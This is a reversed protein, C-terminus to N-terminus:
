TSEKEPVAKRSLGRRLLLWSLIGWGIVGALILCVGFFRRGTWGMQYVYHALILSPISFWSIGWAALFCYPFVFSAHHEERKLFVFRVLMAYLAAVIFFLIAFLLFKGVSPQDLAMGANSLPFPTELHGSCLMRLPKLTLVFLLPKYWYGSGWMWFVLFFPLWVLLFRLRITKLFEMMRQM